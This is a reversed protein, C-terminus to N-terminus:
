LFVLNFGCDASALGRTSALALRPSVLPAAPTGNALNCLCRCLLSCWCPVLTRLTQPRTTPAYLFGRTVLVAAGVLQGSPEGGYGVAHNRIRCRRRLRYVRIVM